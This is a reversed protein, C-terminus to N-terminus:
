LNFSFSTVHLHSDFFLNSAVDDKPQKLHIVVPQIPNNMPHANFFVLEKPYVPSGDDSDDRNFLWYNLSISLPKFGLSRRLTGAKVPGVQMDWSTLFLNPDTYSWHTQWKLQLWEM